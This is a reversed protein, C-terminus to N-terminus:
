CYQSGDKCIWLLDLVCFPCLKSFLSFYWLYIFLSLSHLTCTLSKSTTPMAFLAPQPTMTWGGVLLAWLRGGLWLSSWGRSGNSACVERGSLEIVIVSIFEIEFPVFSSSIVVCVCVCVCMYIYVYQALDTFSTILVFIHALLDIPLRDIEAEEGM